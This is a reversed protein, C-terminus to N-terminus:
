RFDFPLLYVSTESEKQHSYHIYMRMQNWRKENESTYGYANRSKEGQFLAENQQIKTEKQGAKTDMGYIERRDEGKKVFGGAKSREFTEKSGKM